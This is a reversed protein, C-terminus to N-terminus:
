LGVFVVLFDPNIEFIKANEGFVGIELLRAPCLLDDVRSPMKSVSRFSKNEFVM